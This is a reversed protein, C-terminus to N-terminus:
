GPTREYGFGDQKELDVIADLLSWEAGLRGVLQVGVPLGSTRGAPVSVAPLGAFSVPLVFQTFSEWTGRLFTPVEEIPMPLQGLTPTLIVDDDGMLRHVFGAAVSGAQLADAFSRMSIRRGEEILSAVSSGYEEPEGPTLGLTVRRVVTYAAAIEASTWLRDTRRVRHGAAGFARAAKEVADWCAGDADLSSRDVVSVSLRRSRVPPAAEGAMVAFALRLDAASRAFPGRVALRAIDVEESWLRFPSPRLGFVGCCSAPIRISGGMDSGFSIAALGAAVAVASGGSSGGPTYGPRWPNQTAGTLESVTGVSAALEPTATKGLVTVGLARALGVEVSDRIPIRNRFRLSGLTWPMGAVPHTDKVAVTVGAMAGPLAHAAFDVHSFARLHPDVRRIRSLCAQVVDEPPLESRTVAAVVDTATLWNLTEANSHTSQRGLECRAEVVEGDM